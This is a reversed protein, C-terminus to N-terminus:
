LILLLGLNRILGSKMYGGTVATVRRALWRQRQMGVFRTVIARNAAPMEAGYKKLLEEAQRYNEQIAEKQRELSSLRNKVYGAFTYSGLTNNGHQRYYMTQWHMYGIRGFDAALLGLWWDHWKAHEPLDVLYNLLPRNMMMTCGMMKNEMLLHSLDIHHLNLHNSKHFSEATVNLKEDTVKADSFVLIPEEEGYKATMREMARVSDGIKEPFWVDDQDAFMVYREPVRRAAELFNLVVGLNKPNQYISMRNPYARQCMEAIELTSDTSGDDFIYLHFDQYKNQVISVIQEKIYESGNYSTLIVGVRSM